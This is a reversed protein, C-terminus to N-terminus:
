PLPPITNLKQAKKWSDGYRKASIKNAKYPAWDLGHENAVHKKKSSIGHELNYM